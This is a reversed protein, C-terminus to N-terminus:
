RVPQQEYLERRRAELLNVPLGAYEAASFVQVGKVEGAEFVPKFRERWDVDRLAHHDLILKELPCKDLIMLINSLSKNFSEFSYKYGLMYTMAGDLILMNPKCELIYNLQDDLVPGEVDSSYLLRYGDDILVELVYGLRPDAGHCVPPSFKVLTEGFRFVSNDAFELRCPLGEIKDLFFKSRKVQSFNINNKPHKVLVTKGEYIYTDEFPNFHDFHYHTILLVDAREAYDLIRRWSESLAELEVPHPPLGFRYPALSVGPDILIRADRTEVFCCM